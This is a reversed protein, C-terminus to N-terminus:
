GNVLDGHMEYMVIDAFLHRNEHITDFDFLEYFNKQNHTMLYVQKSGQKRMEGLLEQFFKRGLGQGRKEPVIYFWFIDSDNVNSIDAITYGIIQNDEFLGLIIRNPNLKARFFNWASNDRKVREIYEGPFYAFDEYLARRFVRKLKPIKNIKIPQIKAM